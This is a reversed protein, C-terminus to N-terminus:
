WRSRPIDLKAKRNTADVSELTFNAFEYVPQAIWDVCALMAPGAKLALPPPTKTISQSESPIFIQANGREAIGGDMELAPTGSILWNPTGAALKWPEQSKSVWKGACCSIKLVSKQPLLAPLVKWFSPHGITLERRAAV